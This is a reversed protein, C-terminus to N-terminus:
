PKVKGEANYKDWNCSIAGDYGHGTYVCQILKGDEDVLYTLELAYHGKVTTTDSEVSGINYPDSGEAACGALCLAVIGIKILTKM